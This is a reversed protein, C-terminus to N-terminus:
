IEVWGVVSRAKFPMSWHGDFDPTVRTPDFHAGDGRLKWITGSTDAASYLRWPLEARVHKYFEEWSWWVNTQAALDSIRVPAGGVIPSSNWAADLPGAASEYPQTWDDYTAITS